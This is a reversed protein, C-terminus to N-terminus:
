VTAWVTFLRGTICSVQTEDRPQSFERSFPISISEPVRAQLIGYVSSGPLSCGMSHLSDSM